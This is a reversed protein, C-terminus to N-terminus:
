VMREGVGSKVGGELWSDGSDWIRINSKISYRKKQQTCLKGNVNPTINKKKSHLATANVGQLLHQLFIHKTWCPTVTYFM